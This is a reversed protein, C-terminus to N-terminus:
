ESVIKVTCFCGGQPTGCFLKEWPNQLILDAVKILIDRDSNNEKSNHLIRLLM